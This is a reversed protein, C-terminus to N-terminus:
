VAVPEKFESFLFTLTNLDKVSIKADDLDKISIPEWEFSVDRDLLEDFRKMFEEQADKTFEFDGGEKEEGLERILDNREDELTSFHENIKDVLGQINMAIDTNLREELLRGFAEKAVFLDKLKLDM